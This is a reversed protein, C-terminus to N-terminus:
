KAKGTNSEKLWKPWKSEKRWIPWRPDDPAPLDQSEKFAYEDLFSEWSLPDSGSSALSWPDKMVFIPEMVIPEGGIDNRREMKWVAGTKTDLLLTQGINNDVIQYRPQSDCGVILAGLAVTVLWKSATM